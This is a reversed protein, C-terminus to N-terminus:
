EFARDAWKQLQSAESGSGSTWNGEGYKGDMMRKSFEKGSEGVQPGEEAWSPKDSAAEKGSQGPKKTKPVGVEKATKKAEALAREADSQNKRAKILEEIEEKTKCKKLRKTLDQTKKAADAAAKTAKALAAAAAARAPHGQLGLYDWENVGDNEIFVYLNIGGEEEIPDRSPWRGTLPDYYRYTYFTVGVQELVLEIQRLENVAL